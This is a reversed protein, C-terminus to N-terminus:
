PLWVCKSPRRRSRDAGTEEGLRLTALTAMDTLLSCCVFWGVLGDQKLCHRNEHWASSLKLASRFLTMMRLLCVFLSSRQGRSHSQRGVSRQVSSSTSPRQQRGATGSGSGGASSNAGLIIGRLAGFLRARLDENLVAHAPLAPLCVSLVAVRFSHSTCLVDVRRRVAAARHRRARADAATPSVTSSSSSSANHRHQQRQQKTGGSATGALEGCREFHLAHALFVVPSAPGGFSHLLDIVVGVGGPVCVLTRLAVDHPIQKDLLAAVVSPLLQDHHHRSTLGGDDTVIMPLHLFAFDIRQFLCLFTCGRTFCAVGGGDGSWIVYDM